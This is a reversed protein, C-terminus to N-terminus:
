RPLKFIITVDQHTEIPRENLLTPKYRWLRVASMTSSLLFIPGSVPKIETVLGQQGITARVKVTEEAGYRDGPRPNRPLVYSVLKGAKLRSAQNGAQDFEPPVVVSLQTTITLSSSSAIQKQPFIARLPKGSKSPITVFDPSPPNPEAAKRPKSTPAPNEPAADKPGEVVAPNASESNAPPSPKPAATTPSKASDSTPNGPANDKPSAAVAPNASGSSAPPAASPSAPTAPKAALPAPDGPAAGKSGAAVAPHDHKTDVASPKPINAAASKTKHSDANGPETAKPGVAVVPRPRKPSAALLSSKPANRTPGVAVAPYAHKLSTTSPSSKPAVATAPKATHSAPNRSRRTRSSALPPDVHEARAPLASRAIPGTLDNRNSREESDASPKPETASSNSDTTPVEVSPEADATAEKSREEPARSSGVTNADGSSDPDVSSRSSQVPSTETSTVSPASDSPPGSAPLTRSTQSRLRVQKGFPGRGLSALVDVSAKTAALGIILGIVAFLFVLAAVQLGSLDFIYLHAASDSAGEASSKDEETQTQSGIGAVPIHPASPAAPESPPQVQPLSRAQPLDGTSIKATSRLMSDGLDANSRVAIPFSDQQSKNEGVPAPHKAYTSESPFMEAYWAAAEEDRASPNSFIKRFKRSGIELPQKNRRLLQRPEEFEGTLKESEIWNSIQARADATLDVLGVGVGKKSETLWVVRASTEISQSSVPLQFRICRPYDGEAPLNDVALAMGTESVNLVIGHVIGNIDSLMVNVLSKPTVRTKLRRDRAPPLGNLYEQLNSM